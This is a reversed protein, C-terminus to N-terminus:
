DSTHKDDGFCRISMRGGKLSIQIAGSRATTLALVGRDHLINWAPLGEEPTKSSILAVGPRLREALFGAVSAKTGHHPIQIVDCKPAMERGYVMRCAIEGADGTLVAQQGIANVELVLSRENTDLLRTTVIRAPPHMVRVAAVDGLWIIDGAAVEQVETGRRQAIQVMTRGLSDEAFRPSVILRRVHIREALSPFGSVHDFHPHSFVVADLRTIGEHWLYKAVVNKGVDYNGLTGCDYLVDHAGPFQLLVSNGHGVALCTVNFDKRSPTFLWWCVPLIALCLALIVLRALNLRLRERWITAGLFLFYALMWAVSPGAVYFACGPTWSILQVLQVFGWSVTGSGAPSGAATASIMGTVQTLWAVPIVVVNFLAALPTVLHFHFAVLPATALQAAASVAVCKRVNRRIWFWARRKRATELEDLPSDRGPLINLIPAYFLGIGLVCLFSLQFGVDFVENPNLLLIVLAALALSNMLQQQRALIVGLCAVAAMVGARVPPATAGTLAAYYAVFALVLLAAPRRRVGAYQLCFWLSGALMAMHLGSVSLIHVTGTRQFAEEIKKPVSGRNGLLICSLVSAQPEPYNAFIFDEM